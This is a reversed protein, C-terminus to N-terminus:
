QQSKRNKETHWLYVFFAVIMGIFVVGFAIVWIIDVTESPATAAEMEKAAAFLPSSILFLMVASLFKSM